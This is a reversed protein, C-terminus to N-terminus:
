SSVAGDLQISRKARKISIITSCKLVLIFYFLKLNYLICIIEYKSSMCIKFDRFHPHYGGIVCRYTTNYDDATVLIQLNCEEALPPKLETCYVVFSENNVNEWHDILADKGCKLVIIEGETAYVNVRGNLSFVLSM